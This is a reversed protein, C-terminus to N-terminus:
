ISGGRLLKWDSESPAITKMGSRVCAVGATARMNLRGRHPLGVQKKGGRAVACGTYIRMTKPKLRPLGISKLGSKGLVVGHGLRMTLTRRIEIGELSDRLAQAFWIAEQLAKWEEITGFRGESVVKFSYPEGGYEHWARVQTASGFVAECIRRIAGFTGEIRHWEFSEAILKRKAEGTLADRWFDVHLGWALFPLFREPAEYPRWLKKIDEPLIDDGFEVALSLARESALANSPLLHQKLSM